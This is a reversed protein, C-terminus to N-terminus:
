NSCNIQHNGGLTTERKYDAARTLKRRPPALVEMMMDVNSDLTLDSNFYIYLVETIELNM